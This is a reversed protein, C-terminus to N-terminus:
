PVPAAARQLSAKLFAAARTYGGDAGDVFHLHDRTLPSAVLCTVLASKQAHVGYDVLGAAAGAALEREIRARTADDCDITLLLGDEFKRYDANASTTRCYVAPDFGGVKWGTRHLVWAALTAFGVKARRLALAEGERRSARAELELGAPPWEFGPGEDPLPHGERDLGRV